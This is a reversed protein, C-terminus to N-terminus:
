GSGGSLSYDIVMRGNRYRERHEVALEYLGANGAAEALSIARSVIEIADGYRGDAAYAAALTALSEPSGNTLGSARRAFEIAALPDRIEARPHTAKIWAVRDLAVPNYPERELARAFNEVALDAKGQSVQVSGLVYRGGPADPEIELLQYALRGAERVRGHALYLRALSELLWPQEASAELAEVLKGAALAPKGRRLLNGAESELVDVREWDLDALRIDRGAVLGSLPLGIARYRVRGLHTMVPEVDVAVSPSQRSFWDLVSGPAYAVIPDIGPSFYLHELSNKEDSISDFAGYNARLEENTQIVRAFISSGDYVRIKSLEAALKEDSELRTAIREVVFPSKAGILILENSYGSIMLAQPFAAIFTKVAMGVAEAPMQYVPLWQSMMGTPTLRAIVEEYYERSYLRYVGAAMPPPPESTILDYEQDTLKLFARGDDNILRLRPDLHVAGHSESFEPATEFVRHNLDVADIQSITDHAAIASATNGVGFGILLAREPNDQLLLPVHAMLRMYTQGAPTTGSMSLNGFYLRRHDPFTVVFTTDTGNSKMSNVPYRTAPNWPSLYDGDFGDPTMVILAGVLGLTAVPKWVEVPRGERLSLFFLVGISLFGLSVKLSYFISVRPAIITFGIMGICFAVTNLGYAIGLHKRRGQLRNCVYPFLLSILFCTPFAYVGVFLFLQLNSAPFGAFEISFGEGPVSGSRGVKLLWDVADYVYRWSLYYIVPALMTAAKIHMLHLERSLRVFASGLFIAAIAWFSIAPMTAGPNNPIVLALRKFLDGEVAGALIGSLLASAILVGAGQQSTEFQPSRSSNPEALTRTGAGFTLFFAGISFNTAILLWYTDSHGLLPLFVFQCAIVGGCAGLTNWAYLASPFRSGSREAVFVHCLLPFTTGMLFCPVFVCAIAILLQSSRYAANQFWIGNALTYPFSGWADAPIVQMALTVCASASILIEIVGYARLPDRLELLGTIGSSVRRSALAGAGLGGIFNCVVLAFALNTAGFWDTFVRFWVVQYGLSVFGSIAYLILIRFM